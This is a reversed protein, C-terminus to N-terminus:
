LAAYYNDTYPVVTGLYKKVLDPYKKIAESISCFIVGAEDLVEQHTTGVSVSDFVADVAVGSIRKQESLPIGLKEFTKLLEPDLQDLSEVTPKKKPASFYRISQFDIEPYQVHAWKPEMMTQWYRFATLRYELM